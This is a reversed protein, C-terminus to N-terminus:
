VTSHYPLRTNAAKTQNDQWDILDQAWDQWEKEGRVPYAPAPAADRARARSMVQGLGAGYYPTRVENGNSRATWDLHGANNNTYREWQKEGRVAPVDTVWRSQTLAAGNYPRRSEPNTDWNLHNDAHANNYVAWQKEGRDAPTDGSFQNLAGGYYPARPAHMNTRPSWDLHDANNNTYRAWQKEGRVAPTDTIWRNSTQSFENDELGAAHRAKKQVLAPTTVGVLAMVISYKM